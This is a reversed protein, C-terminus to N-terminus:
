NTKLFIHKLLCVSEYKDTQKLIEKPSRKQDASACARRKWLFKNMIPGIGTRKYLGDNDSRQIQLFQSCFLVHRYSCDKLKTLILDPFYKSHAGSTEFM